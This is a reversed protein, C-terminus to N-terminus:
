YNVLDMKTMVTLITSTPVTTWITLWMPSFPQGCRASHSTVDPQITPWMPSFPQGCRDSHNAVDPQITPWLISVPGLAHPFDTYM